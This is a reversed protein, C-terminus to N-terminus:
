RPRTRGRRLPSALSLAFVLAACLVEDPAGTRKCQAETERLRELARELREAPWADAQRQFRARRDRFLPPRLAALAAGRDSASAVARLRQFHRQLGRLMGVPAIGEGACRQLAQEATPGDGEAVAFCLEDLSAAGSDGVVAEADALTVSGTESKYLCLKELERRSLQRDGGLNRLLYDAADPEPELGNAQLVQRMLGALSEQEDRYCAVAAAEAGASEFARVLPSKRQLEGAEVLVLADGPLEQLFAQLIKVSEAGVDRLRVLRRGGGFALAGAEDNLRAPDDRLQAGSLVSLRFPDDMSGIVAHIVREAREAILGSDPGYLLIARLRAPPDALLADIQSPKPQM